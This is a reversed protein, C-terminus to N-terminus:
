AACADVRAELHEALMRDIKPASMRGEVRRIVRREKALVLTPVVSISFRQALDPREDVDVRMVRLRDRERHALQALLSEMRRGPGSRSSTFFALIPRQDNM